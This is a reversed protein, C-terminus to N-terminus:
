LHRSKRYLRAREAPSGRIDYKAVNQVTDLVASAGSMAADYLSKAVSKLLSSGSSFSADLTPEPVGTDQDVVASANFLYEINVVAEIILQCSAPLGEFGIVSVSGNPLTTGNSVTGTCAITTFVFSDNDNPRYCVTAGANGLGLEIQALAKMTDLSYQNLGNAYTSPISGFYCIGPSVTAAMVPLVRIGASVIRVENTEASVLSAGAVGLSNALGTVSHAANSWLVPGSSGNTGLWPFM